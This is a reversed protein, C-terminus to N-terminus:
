GSQDTVTQASYKHMNEKPGGPNRKSEGTEDMTYEWKMCLTRSEITFRVLIFCNVKEPLASM